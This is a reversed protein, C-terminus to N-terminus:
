RIIKQCFRKHVAFARTTRDTVVLDEDKIQLVMFYVYDIPSDGRVIRLINLIVFDGVGIKDTNKKKRKVKSLKKTM